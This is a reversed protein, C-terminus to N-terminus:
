TAVARHHQGARGGCRAISVDELLPSSVAAQAAEVARNEGAAKGTGMLANGRDAMVAKVDAFDLNVLGPM